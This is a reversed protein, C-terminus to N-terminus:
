RVCREPVYKCYYSNLWSGFDTPAAAAPALPSLPVSTFSLRPPGLKFDSTRAGTLSFDSSFSSGASLTTESKESTGPLPASVGRAALKRNSELLRELKGLREPNAFPRMQEIKEDVAKPDAIDADIITSPTNDWALFTNYAARDKGVLAEVNGAVEPNLLGPKLGKGELAKLQEKSFAPREPAAPTHVARAQVALAACACFLLPIRRGM